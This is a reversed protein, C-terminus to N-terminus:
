VSSFRIDPVDELHLEYFGCEKKSDELIECDDIKVPNSGNLIKMLTRRKVNRSIKEGYALCIEKVFPDIFDRENRYVERLRGNFYM